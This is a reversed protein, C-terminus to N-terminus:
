SILKEHLIKSFKEKIQDDTDDDKITDLVKELMHPYKDIIFELLQQHTIKTNKTIIKNKYRVICTGDKKPMAAKVKDLVEPTENKDFQLVPAKVLKDKLINEKILQTHQKGFLVVPRKTNPNIIYKNQKKDM